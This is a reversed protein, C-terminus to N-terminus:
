DTQAINWPSGGGPDPEHSHSSFIVMFHKTRCRAPPLGESNNGAETHSRLGSPPHPQTPSGRVGAGPNWCCPDGPSQLHNRDWRQLEQRHSCTRLGSPSETEM